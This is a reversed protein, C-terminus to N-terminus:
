HLNVKLHAQAGEAGGRLLASSEIPAGLSDRMFEIDCCISATGTEYAQALQKTNPYKGSAVERDIFYIRSLM